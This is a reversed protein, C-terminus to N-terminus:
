ISRFCTFGKRFVEGYYIGTLDYVLKSIEIAKKIDLKKNMNYALHGLVAYFTKEDEAFEINMYFVGTSKSMIWEALPM